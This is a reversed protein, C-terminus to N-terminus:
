GRQDPYQPFAPRARVLTRVEDRVSTGVIKGRLPAAFLVAIRAAEPEGRGRVTTAATELRPARGERGIPARAGEVMIGAAALLGQAARPGRGLPRVPIIM